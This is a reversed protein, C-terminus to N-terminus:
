QPVSVTLLLSQQLRLLASFWIFVYRQKQPTVTCANGLSGAGAGPGEDGKLVGQHAARLVVLRKAAATGGVRGPDCKIEEFLVVCFHTLNFGLSQSFPSQSTRPEEDGMM